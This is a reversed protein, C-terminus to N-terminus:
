KQELLYQKVFDVIQESNVDIDIDGLITIHLGDKRYYYNDPDIKKYKEVVDYLANLIDGEPFYNLTFNPEMWDDKSLDFLKVSESNVGM